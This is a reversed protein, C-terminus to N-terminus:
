GTPDDIPCYLNETARQFRNAMAEDCPNRGRIGIWRRWTSFSLTLGALCITNAHFFLARTKNYPRLWASFRADLFPRILAEAQAEIDAMIQEQTLANEGFARLAEGLLRHDIVNTLNVAVFGRDMDSDQLQRVGEKVREVHKSPNRSNLMKCPIGWSVDRVRCRVDPEDMRVTDAAGVAVAAVYLEWVLDRDKSQKGAKAVLVDRGRFLHWSRDFVIPSVALAARITRVLNAGSVALLLEKQMRARGDETELFRAADVKVNPGTPPHLKAEAVRSMAQLAIDLPSGGTLHVGNSALKERFWVAHDDFSDLGPVTPRCRLGLNEAM